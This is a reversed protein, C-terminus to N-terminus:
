HEHERWHPVNQCDMHADPQRHPGLVLFAPAKLVEGLACPAIAFGNLGTRSRTAGGGIYVGQSVGGHRTYATPSKRGM